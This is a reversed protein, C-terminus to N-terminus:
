VKQQEQFNKKFISQSMLHLTTTGSILVRIEFM